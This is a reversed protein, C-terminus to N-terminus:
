VLQSYIKSLHEQEIGLERLMAYAQNMPIYSFCNSENLIKSIADLRKYRDPDKDQKNRMAVAKDRLEIQIQPLQETENNM